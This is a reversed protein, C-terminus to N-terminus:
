CPQVLCPLSSAHQMGGFPPMAGHPHTSLSQGYLMTPQTRLLVSQKYTRDHARVCRGACATLQLGQETCLAM